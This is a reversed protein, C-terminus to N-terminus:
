VNETNKFIFFIHIPSKRKTSLVSDSQATETTTKTENTNDVLMVKRIFAHNVQTSKKRDFNGGGADM